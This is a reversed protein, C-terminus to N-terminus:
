ARVLMVMRRPTGGGGQLNDALIVDTEAKWGAGSLAGDRRVLEDLLDADRAGEVVLTGARPFSSLLTGVLGAAGGPAGASQADCELCVVADADQLRKSFREYYRGGRMVDAPRCPLRRASAEGAASADGDDTWAPDELFPDVVTSSLVGQMLSAVAIGSSGGLELVRLSRRGSLWAAALVHTQQKRPPTPPPAGGEQHQQKQQQQRLKAYRFERCGRGRMGPICWSCGGRDDRTTGYPCGGVLEAVDFRKHCEYFDGLTDLKGVRKNMSFGASSKALRHANYKCFNRRRDPPADLAAGPPASKRIAVAIGRYLYHADLLQLGWRDLESAVRDVTQPVGSRCQRDPDRCTDHFTVVGRPSLLQVYNAFDRYSQEFSHDADVHLYDVTGALGRAKLMEFAADTTNFLYHIDPYKQRMVTDLNEAYFTSGWGAAGLHADVLYLDGAGSGEPVRGAAALDRQAQRLVRPVFGGGSGLVVITRAQFAYAFGYYLM